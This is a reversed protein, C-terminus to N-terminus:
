GTACDILSLKENWLGDVKVKVSGNKDMVNGEVKYSNKGTWGQRHITVDAKIGKTINTIEM